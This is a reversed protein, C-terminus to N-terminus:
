FTDSIYKYLHMVSDQWAGKHGHKEVSWIRELKKQM